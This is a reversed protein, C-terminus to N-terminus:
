LWQKNGGKRTSHKKHRKINLQTTRLKNLEM